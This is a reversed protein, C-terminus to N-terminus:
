SWYVIITAPTVGATVITLGTTTQMGIGNPKIGLLEGLATTVLANIIVQGSNTINDYGTITTTAGVTQVVIGYLVGASAKIVTTTNTNIVTYKAATQTALPNASSPAQFNGNSDLTGVVVATPSNPNSMPM